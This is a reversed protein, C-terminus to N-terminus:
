LPFSGECPFPARRGEALCHLARGVELVVSVMNRLCIVRSPKGVLVAGTRQRKDAHEHDGEADPRLRPDMEANVIVGSRRDMKQAVLPTSMGQRNRGLGEGAPANLTGPNLTCAKSSPHAPSRAAWLTLSDPARPPLLFLMSATHTHFLTPRGGEMLVGVGVGVWVGRVSRCQGARTRVSM